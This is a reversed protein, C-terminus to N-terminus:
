LAEGELISNEPNWLSATLRIACDQPSEYGPQDEPRTSRFTGAAVPKSTKRHSALVKALNTVPPDHDHGGAHLRDRSAAVANDIEAPTVGDALWQKAQAINQTKTRINREDYNHVNVLYVLYDAASKIPMPKKSATVNKSQHDTDTDTDTDTEQATVTVNCRQQVASDDQNKENKQRQRYKAVRETSSDSKFQLDDWSLPQWRANILNADILRAKASQLADSQLGLKRGIIKDIKTSDSDHDLYGDNKFCLLWVYHRQDEFSLLEIEEDTVIRSYLRFWQNRNRPRAM